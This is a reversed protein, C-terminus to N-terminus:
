SQRFVVPYEILLRSWRLLARVSTLYSVGRLIVVKGLHALENRYGANVNSNQVGVAPDHAVTVPETVEGDEELDSDSVYDYDEGLDSDESPEYGLSKTVGEAFGGSLVQFNTESSSRDVWHRAHGVTFYERDDFYRVSKLAQSNAFLPRLRSVGGSSKRCSFLYVKTDIFVGSAVSDSLASHLSHPPFMAILYPIRDLRRRKTRAKQHVQTFASPITPPPVAAISKLADPPHPRM